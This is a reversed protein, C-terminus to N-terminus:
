ILPALASLALDQQWGDGLGVQSSHPGLSSTPTLHSKDVVYVNISILSPIYLLSLMNVRLLYNAVRRAKGKLLGLILNLNTFFVYHLNYSKLKCIKLKTISYYEEKYFKFIDNANLNDEEIIEAMLLIYIQFLHNIM